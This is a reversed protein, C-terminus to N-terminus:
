LGQAAPVLRALSRWWPRLKSQRQEPRGPRSVHLIGVWLLGILRCAWGAAAARASLRWRPPPWGSLYRQPGKRGRVAKTSAQARM